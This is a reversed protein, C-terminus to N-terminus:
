LYAIRVFEDGDFNPIKDFRQIEYAGDNEFARTPDETTLQALAGGPSLDVGADPPIWLVGREKLNRDCLVKSRSMEPQNTIRNIFNETVEEYRCNIEIPDLLLPRGENNLGEFHWYVATQNLAEELFIDEAPETYDPM